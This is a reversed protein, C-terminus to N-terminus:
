EKYIIIIVKSKIINILILHFLFLYNFDLEFEALAFSKLIFSFLPMTIKKHHTM